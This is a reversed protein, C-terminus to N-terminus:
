QRADVVGPPAEQSESLGEGQKYREETMRDLVAAYLASYTEPHAAYTDLINQFRTSDLGHRALISDREAPLATYDLSQRAAALHIEIFVEVM